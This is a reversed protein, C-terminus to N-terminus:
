LAIKDFIHVYIQPSSISVYSFSPSSTSFKSLTKEASNVKGDANRTVIYYDLHSGGEERKFMLM